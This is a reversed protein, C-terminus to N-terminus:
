LGGRREPTMGPSQGLHTDEGTAEEPRGALGLDTSPTAETSGAAEAPVRVAAALECGVIRRERILCDIVFVTSDSARLSLLRVGRDVIVSEAESIHSEDGRGSRNCVVLPLGSDLTRAEWEGNPGCDGPWWAAASVLLQAGADRLRLAPQPPYADACILLGVPIGGVIVPGTLEGASSWAESGPTPHLKRQRGLVRGDRGLVFLSNYLKGSAADREPHSVFSVVGLEANLRALRQLWGLSQENIWETGIREAFCYGSVVLEGSIAWNAGLEAAVRTASEILARNADLAGLEPALHMLAIKLSRTKV